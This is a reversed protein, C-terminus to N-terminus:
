QESRCGVEQWYFPQCNNPNSSVGLHSQGPNLPCPAHAGGPPFRICVSCKGGYCTSSGGVVLAGTANNQVTLDGSGGLWGFGTGAPDGMQDQMWWTDNLGVYTDVSTNCSDTDACVRFIVGPNEGDVEYKAAYDHGLYLGSLSQLVYCHGYQIGIDSGNKSPCVPEGSCIGASPSSPPAVCGLGDLIEGLACCIGLGLLKDIWFLSKTSEDCCLKEGTLASTFSVCARQDLAKTELANIAASALGLIPFLTLAFLNKM